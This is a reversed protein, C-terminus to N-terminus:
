PVETFVGVLLNVSSVRSLEIAAMANEHVAPNTGYEEAVCLPLKQDYAVVLPAM